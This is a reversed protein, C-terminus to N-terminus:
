GGSKLVMLNLMSEQKCWCKCFEQFVGGYEILSPFRLDNLSFVNYVHVVKVMNLRYMIIFRKQVDYFISRLLSSQDLCIPVILIRLFM